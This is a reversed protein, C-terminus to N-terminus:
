PAPPAGSVYVYRDLMTVQERVFSARLHTKDKYLPLGDGSAVPCTGAACLWDFPDVWEAGAARGSQLIRANVGAVPGYARDRPLPGVPAARWAFFGRDLRERPSAWQGGPSNGVIVVRKGARTLAALDRTWHGFLWANEAAFPAIPGAGPADARYYDPRGAFGLWSAAFVVTKVAPDRALALADAVFRNCAMGKREIGGLPACGAATMFQVSYVPAARELVLREIRPLYQQMHSDGVFLVREPSDGALLGNDVLRWDAEAATVVQVVPWAASRPAPGILWVALGSAGLVLTASWLRAADRTALAHPLPRRFPREIFRYTLWALGVAALSLGTGVAVSMPEGTLVRAFAFLPWHWLYLPYSILGIWVAPRSALVLRNFSAAPGAAILLASGAVPLLAAWGPFPTHRDLAFLALLILVLGAASLADAARAPAPAGRGALFALLGGLLLEWFRTIPLYFTLTPLRDLWHVNLAFSAVALLLTALLFLRAHRALLLVLLPWLLYYQEEVGLSWLHLLPKLESNIDFYGAERWLVINSVFGAGALVHKGLQAYEAPLLTFWGFALVALLVVCLAPFLRRARRIYFRLVSFSGQRVEALLIGTILFGSIVFFIDVGVYGGPVLTPFAHFLVVALVAVARLGDIDPRYNKM